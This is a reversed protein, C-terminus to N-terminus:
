RRLRARIWATVDAQAAPLVGTHDATYTRYTLEVDASRLDDALDETLSPPKLEDATGQVILVQGRIHARTAENDALATAYPQLSAGPKFMDAPAMTAWARNRALEAFCKTTTLKYIPKFASRLLRTIHLEPYGADFGRTIEAAIYTLPSPSTSGFLAPFVLDNHSSPAYAVTGQVELEPTWRKAQGNAWLTAHGGSSHGATVVRRGISPVIQRAARVMDLTDHAAPVGVLYPYVGPTGLGQYDTRVVAYGDEVWRNLTGEVTRLYATAPHRRVDLSPACRDALGTVGYSWSIVPWGGRPPKGPPVALSGSVAAPRGRRAASRYLVLLNRSAAPLVAQGSLRRAWIVDGHRKGPLPAPPEYFARGSPGQRVRAQAPDPALFAGGLGSCCLALGVAVASTLDRRM